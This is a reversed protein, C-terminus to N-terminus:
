QQLLDFKIFILLRMFGCLSVIYDLRIQLFISCLIATIVQLKYRATNKFDGGLEVPVDEFQETNDPNDLLDGYLAKMMRADPRKNYAM